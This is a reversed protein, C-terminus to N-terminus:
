KGGLQALPELCWAFSVENCRHLLEANDLATSAVIGPAFAKVRQWTELRDPEPVTAPSGDRESASEGDIGNAVANNRDFDHAVAFLSSLVQWADDAILRLSM